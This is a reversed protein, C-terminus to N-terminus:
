GTTTGGSNILRAVWRVIVLALVIIVIGIVANVVATRGKTAREADGGATIYLIGGYILYVVAITGAIGLFWNILNTILQTLSQNQLLPLKETGGLQAQARGILNLM